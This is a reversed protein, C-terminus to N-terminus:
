SLAFENTESLYVEGLFYKYLLEVDPGERTIQVLMLSSYVLRRLVKKEPNRPSSIVLRKM